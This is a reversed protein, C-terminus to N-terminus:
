IDYQEPTASTFAPIHTDGTQMPGAESLTSHSARAAEAVDQITLDYLRLDDQRVLVQYEPLEGGIVSVQSVGPIALLKNRLDFEAYARIELETLSQDPSSAALLLIEGTISTIPTMEAHADPPLDERM